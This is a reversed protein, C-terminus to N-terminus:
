LKLPMKIIYQIKLSLLNLEEIQFKSALIGM